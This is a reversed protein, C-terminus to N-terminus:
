ARPPPAEVPGAWEGDAFARLLTRRRDVPGPLVVAGAPAAEFGLPGFFEPDGVLLVAPLGAARAAECAATVLAAGTGRGRQNAEVALPGLFALARGGVGIKSMRACGVLVGGEEAVVCLPLTLPTLERVRQSAKAHRGPGFARAVLAEIAPGDEPREARIPAPTM